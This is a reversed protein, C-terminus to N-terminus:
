AKAWDWDRRDQGAPDSSKYDTSM